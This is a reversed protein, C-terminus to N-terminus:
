GCARRQLAMSLLSSARSADSFVYLAVFHSTLTRVTLAALTGLLVDAVLFIVSAGFCQV